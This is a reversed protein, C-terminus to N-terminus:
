VMMVEMGVVIGVIMVGGDGGDGRDGGGVLCLPSAYAVRKSAGVHETIIHKPM